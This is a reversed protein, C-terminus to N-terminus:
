ATKNNVLDSITKIDKTEFWMIGVELELELNHINYQMISIM